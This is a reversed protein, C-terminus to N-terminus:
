APASARTVVVDGSATRGRLRLAPERPPAGPRVELESRARGSGSSLDLEAVVGAHVGVRLAGSGSTLELRGARADAVHVAGSGTRVAADATVAGITVDGNGAKVDTSGGLAAVTVAGSGTRIRARGGVAGVTLDGSGTTLDADGAVDGVEARGAGTRVTAQGAAGRVAVDGAGTRATVRSGAPARVTVLLPVMRLPLEGTSRVTLGTARGPASETWSIQAARVADAGGAQRDPETGPAAGVSGLWSAVEGLRQAWGGTAALDHRIEVRVERAAPAPDGVAADDTGTGTGTGTTDTTDPDELHVTVRGVDVAVELEVPGDVPRSEQRVLGGPEAGTDGGANGGSDAGTDGRVGEGEGPGEGAGSSDDVGTV